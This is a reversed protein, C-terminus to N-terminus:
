SRTKYGNAINVHMLKVGTSAYTAYVGCDFDNKQDFVGTPTKRNCKSVIMNFTNVDIKDEIFCDTLNIQQDPELFLKHIIFLFRKWYSNAAFSRFSESHKSDAIYVDISKAQNRQNSPAPIEVTIYHNNNILLLFVFYVDKNLLQQSFSNLKEEDNTLSVM